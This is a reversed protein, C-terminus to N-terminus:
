KELAGGCSSGHGATCGFCHNGTVVRRMSHKAPDFDKIHTPTGHGVKKGLALNFDCDYVSGDYGVDIQNRCMLNELTAPNFSGKLLKVYKKTAGGKKLWRSFRGIPMNTITLLNNFSIGFDKALRKHYENELASQEPPLFDEEPNFVLDLVLNKERGFGVANLRQLGEISKDFVGDGRVSDVEAREYCPLSAVLKVGADRYFSIMDEMGPELLISLNTRVQVNYRDERLATVFRRLEPNMEPAGGTIDVLRPKAKHAVKLICQMTNWDMLETRKPGAQVHCHRCQQNCRLGINIQIIDLRDAHLLNGTVEKVKRDFDNIHKGGMPGNAM